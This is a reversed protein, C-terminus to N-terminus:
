FGVNFVADKSKIAPEPGENPAKGVLDPNNVFESARDHISQYSLTALWRLMKEANAPPDSGWVRQM